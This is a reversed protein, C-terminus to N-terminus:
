MRIGRSQRQTAQQTMTERQTVRQTEEISQRHGLRERLSQMWTVALRQVPALRLARLARMQRVIRGVTQEARERRSQPRITATAVTRTFGAKALAERLGDM